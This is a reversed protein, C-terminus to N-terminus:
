LTRHCALLLLDWYYQLALHLCCVRVKVSQLEQELEKMQSTLVDREQEHNERSMKM